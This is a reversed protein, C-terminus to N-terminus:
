TTLVRHSLFEFDRAPDADTGHRAGEGGDRQLGSRAGVHRRQRQFLQLLESRHEAHDFAIVDFRHVVFFSTVSAMVHM